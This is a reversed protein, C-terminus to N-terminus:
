LLPKGGPHSEVAKIASRLMAVSITQGIGNFEGGRTELRELWAVVAKSSQLLVSWDSYYTENRM